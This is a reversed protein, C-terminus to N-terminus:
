LRKRRRSSASPTSNSSEVTASAVPMPDTSAEMVVDTGAGVPEAPSEILAEVVGTDAQGTGVPTNEPQAPGGVGDPDALRWGVSLFVGPETVEYTIGTSPDFVRAM